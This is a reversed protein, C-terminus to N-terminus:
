VIHSTDECLIRFKENNRIRDFTNDIRLLRKNASDLNCARELLELCKEQHNLMLECKAWDYLTRSDNILTSEANKFKEVAEDYRKLKCLTVGLYYQLNHEKLKSDEADSQVLIEEFKKHTKFGEVLTTQSHIKSFKIEYAKYFSELSEEFRELLYLTVGKAYLTEFSIRNNELDKDFFKIAEEFKGMQYFQLGLETWYNEPKTNSEFAEIKAMLDLADEFQKHDKLEQAKRKLVTVTDEFGKGLENASDDNNAL